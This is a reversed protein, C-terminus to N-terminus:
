RDPAARCRGHRALVPAVIELDGQVDLVVHADDAVVPLIKRVLM